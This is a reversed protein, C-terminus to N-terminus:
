GAREVGEAIQSLLELVAQTREPDTVVGQESHRLSNGELHVNPARTQLLAQRLNVSNLVSLAFNEPQGKLIFRKDLEEDGTQIDQMGLAKGLQSFITEQYIALKGNVRNNIQIVVRTYTRRHRGSGVTYTEMLAPSGRYHGVLHGRPIGLTTQQELQLGTRNAVEGWASMIRRQNFLGIVYALVLSGIVFVIVIITELNSEM